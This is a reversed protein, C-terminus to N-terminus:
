RAVSELMPDVPPDPKPDANPPQLPVAEGALLSQLM